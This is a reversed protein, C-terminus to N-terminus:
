FIFNETLKTNKFSITISFEETKEGWFKYQLLNDIDRSVIRHFEEENKDIIKVIINESLRQKELPYIQMFISIQNPLKPLTGIVLAINNEVSDSELNIIKSQWIGLAQHQPDLKRLSSEASWRIEEDQCNNLVYILAAIANQYDQNDQSLKAVVEIALRQQHKNQNNYIEDINVDVSRMALAYNKELNMGLTLPLNELSQWGARITQQFNNQMWASLNIPQRAESLEKRWNQNTFIAGWQDFSLILRPSYDKVQKLQELLETVKKNSLRSLEPIFQKETELYETSALIFILDEDLEAEDLSYSRMFADYEGRNKLQEYSCYGWIRLWKEDPNIQVAIYYDGAYAPIDIWEQPVNIEGLDENESPIFILKTHNVEVAFGNIFEWIDLLDNTYKIKDEALIDKLWPLCTKLTLLNLYTQWKTANSSNEQALQWSEEQIADTITLGIQEEHFDILNDLTIM